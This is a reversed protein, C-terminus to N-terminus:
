ALQWVSSIDAHVIVNFSPHATNLAEGFNGVDMKDERLDPSAEALEAAEGLLKAEPLPSDCELKRRRGEVVMSITEVLGLSHHCHLVDLNRLLGPDTITPSSLKDLEPASTEITDSLTWINLLAHFALSPLVPAIFIDLSSRLHHLLLATPLM